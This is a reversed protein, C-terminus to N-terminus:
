CAVIEQKSSYVVGGKTDVCGGNRDSAMAVSGKEEHSVGKRDRM